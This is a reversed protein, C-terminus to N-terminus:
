RMRTLLWDVLKPKMAASASRLRSLKFYFCWITNPTARDSNCSRTQQRVASQLEVSLILKLSTLFFSQWGFGECETKIIRLEKLSAEEKWKRAYVKSWFREGFPGVCCNLGTWLLLMM